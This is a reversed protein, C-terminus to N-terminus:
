RLDDATRNINGGTDDATGHIEDETNNDGKIDKGFLFPYSNKNMFNDM